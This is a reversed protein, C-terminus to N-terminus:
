YNPEQYECERSTRYLRIHSIFTLQSERRILQQALTTISLTRFLTRTNQFGILMGTKYQRIRRQKESSVLSNGQIKEIIGKKNRPSSLVMDLGKEEEQAHSWSSKCLRKNNQHLTIYINRMLVIHTDYIKLLGNIRLMRTIRLLM